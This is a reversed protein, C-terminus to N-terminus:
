YISYDVEQLRLMNNLSRRPPGNEGVLIVRCMERMRTCFPDGYKKRIDDKEPDQTGFPMNSTWSTTDGYYRWADYRTEMLAEVVNCTEGFSFGLGERGIEDVILNGRKYRKFMASGQERFEGLLDRATVLRHFRRHKPPIVRRVIELALSKGQEPPGILFAGRSGSAVDDLMEQLCRNHEDWIWGGRLVQAAYEDFRKELTDTTLRIM